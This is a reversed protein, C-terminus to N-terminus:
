VAKLTIMPDVRAARRSPTYGAAAGTGLFLAAAGAMAWPDAVPVGSLLFALPRAGVLAVATGIGVGIGVRLLTTAPAYRVTTV